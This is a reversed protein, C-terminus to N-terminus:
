ANPLTWGEVILAAGAAFQREPHPGDMDRGNADQCLRGVVVGCTPCDVSWRVQTPTLTDAAYEELVKWRALRNNWDVNRGHQKPSMRLRTGAKSWDIGTM